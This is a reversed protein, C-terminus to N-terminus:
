LAITLRIVCTLIKGASGVFFPAAIAVGEVPKLGSVGGKIRVRLRLVM